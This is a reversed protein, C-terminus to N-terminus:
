FLDSDSKTYYLSRRFREAPDSVRFPKYIMGLNDPESQDEFGADSIVHRWWEPRASFWGEVQRAGSHEHSGVVHALLAGFAQPHAKDFLGDGWILREGQQRFVSWGVLQSAKHIAYLRYDVDPCELYRWQVYRADRRILMGYEVAVRNFLASWQEDVEQVRAVDYSSEIPRKRISNASTGELDLVKFPAAEFFHSGEVLRLYYRQIKGTNFGFNLDVADECFTAFHHRMVRHLLNTSRRGVQRTEPASMTDGIQLGFLEEPEGSSTDYFVAPYGSYHAALDGNSAFAVSIKRAGWPNNLYKWEWHARGRPFGFCTEFLKLIQNEDGSQFSRVVYKEALGNSKARVPQNTGALDARTELVPVQEQNPSPEAPPNSRAPEETRSDSEVAISHASLGPQEGNPGSPREASESGQNGVGQLWEFAGKIALLLPDPILRIARWSLSERVNQLEQQAEALLKRLQADDQAVTAMETRVTAVLDILGDREANTEELERETALQNTRTREKESAVAQMADRMAALERNLGSRENQLREIRPWSSTTLMVWYDIHKKHINPIYRDYHRTALFRYQATIGPIRHFDTLTSAKIWFDWDELAELNEDFYEAEVALTRQFVATMFPIYNAHYLHDRDYDVGFFLEKDGVLKLKDGQQEYLGRECDSYAMREGTLELFRVLKEIHTAYLIDDDDLFNLYKGAANKVGVNAAAARGLPKSPSVQRILLAGAFEGVVDSVDTLGANVVVVELNCYTQTLISSLAERLLVPRNTTRVIISVLPQKAHSSGALSARHHTTLWEIPRGAIERSSVVLYGEAYEVKPSVTLARYRNLSIAADTYPHNELQSVYAACAESKRKVVTTIDVLTNVRIPHNFEYFAIRADLRAREAARWILNAAARHDPHYELPSPAYILGPSYSCLLECLRSLGESSSSLTRDPIDWFELDSIGLLGCASAAERRRLSVYQALSHEHRADGKSGDTLFVVKLPDGNEAHRILSGGCALSEDDPHPALVLVRAGTLDSTEFPIESREDCPAVEIPCNELANRTERFRFYFSAGGNAAFHEPLLYVFGHSGCSGFRSMLDWRFISATFEGILRNSEFVQLAVPTEPSATDIAWGKVLEQDSYEVAGIFSSQRAMLDCQRQVHYSRGQIM